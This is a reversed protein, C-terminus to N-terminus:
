RQFDRCPEGPVITGFQQLFQPGGFHGDDFVVVFACTVFGEFPPVALIQDSEIPPFRGSAARLTMMGSPAKLSYTGTRIAGGLRNMNCGSPPVRSRHDICWYRYNPSDAESFGYITVGVHVCGPALYGIVFSLEDGERLRVGIPSPNMLTM